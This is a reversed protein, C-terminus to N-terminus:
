LTLRNCGQLPQHSHLSSPVQGSACRQTTDNDGLTTVDCNNDIADLLKDAPPPPDKEVYRSAILGEENWETLDAYKSPASAAATAANPADFLLM